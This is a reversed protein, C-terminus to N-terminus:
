VDLIFYWVLLNFTTSNFVKCGEMFMLTPDLKYSFTKLNSHNCLYTYLM